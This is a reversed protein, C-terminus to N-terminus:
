DNREEDLSLSTQWLVALKVVAGALGAAVENRSQDM